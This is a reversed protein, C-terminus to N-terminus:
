SSYLKPNANNMVDDILQTESCVYMCQGAIMDIVFGPDDMLTHEELKLENICRFGYKVLFRQISQVM